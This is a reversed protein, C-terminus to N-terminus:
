VRDTGVDLAAQAGAELTLRVVGAGAIATDASLGRVPSSLFPICTMAPMVKGHTM